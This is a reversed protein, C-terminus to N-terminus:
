ELKKPNRCDHIYPKGVKGYEVTAISSNNHKFFAPAWFKISKEDFHYSACMEISFILTRTFDM